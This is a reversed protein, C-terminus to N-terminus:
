KLIIRGLAKGEDWTFEFSSAIMSLFLQCVPHRVRNLLFCLKESKCYDKGLARGEHWSVIVNLIKFKKECNPLM